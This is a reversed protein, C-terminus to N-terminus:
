AGGEVRKITLTVPITLDLHKQNFSVSVNAWYGSGSPERVYCDGTWIALRRLAYLTETDDKPIVTNWTSSEGLQTGYYSVPRKRGAYEVLAVDMGYSDSVDINYPLRLLSGSWPPQSPPNDVVADYYTWDEDWQIIISTEGIPYGPMDYYSVAGTSDTTAVIRYRAYDLAPHPDTIYTNKTNDIGTGLETYSGDFERRYVALTVGEVLTGVEVEHYLITEGGTVNGNEDVSIESSGSYVQEGTETYVYEYKTIQSEKIRVKAGYKNRYYYTTNGSVDIEEYVKDGKSTYPAELPSGELVSISTGTSIYTDSNEDYTVGSYNTTYVECYPRINTTVLDSDFQVIANPVYSVEEWSVTFDLSAEATLGSNMSAVCTITYSINSEFDVDGASLVVDLDTDQDFYRSYVQDGVNVMKDNGVSDVTEYIDNSVITLHFGIPVQTAPGTVTSVHLPFSGLTDFTSNITNTADRVTMTITPQAHIDIIRIVSWEGFTNTVGSTRVRWRLQVGEKYYSPAEARLYAAIDFSSTKDKEDIDTSNKIEETASWKLEYNINGSDDLGNATYLELGVQAWTQSSGDESNHVWYLTLPGDVTATTVSSWTTPAEPPEGLVVSSIKSWDSEGGNNVAKLRFYYTHGTELSYTEYHNLDINDIVTTQDTGDFYNESTAYEIKYKTASSVAKWELYVSVKGDTSSSKARCATFGAPTSPATAVSPSYPSWESKLSGRVARCRVKYEAGDDLVGSKYSVYKYGANIKQSVVKGFQSTNNKVIQFEIHTADLEDADIDSISAVLKNKAPEELEVSPAGPAEPPLSKEVNYPKYVGDKEFNTWVCTWYTKSVQKTTKGSTVEETYTKSIPKVRFRVIYANDPITCTSEWETTTSKSITWWKGVTVDNTTDKGIGKINYEWEYEFHETESTKKPNTWGAYLTPQDSSALLGFHNIYAKNTPKSTKSSSTSATGSLKIKQGDIIRDPNSIGNLKAIATYKAKSGDGLYDKCIQSLTDGPEVTVVSPKASPAPKAM